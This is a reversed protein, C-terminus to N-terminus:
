FRAPALFYLLLQKPFSKIHAPITNQQSLIGEPWATSVLRAVMDTKPTHIDFM